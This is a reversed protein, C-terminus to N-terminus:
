VLQKMIQAGSCWDGTFLGHMAAHVITFRTCRIISSRTEDVVMKYTSAPMGGSQMSGAISVAVMSPERGQMGAHGGELMSLSLGGSRLRVNPAAARQM